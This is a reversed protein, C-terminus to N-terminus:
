DWGDLGLGMGIRQIRSSPKVGAKLGLKGIGLIVSDAHDPKMGAEREYDEVGAWGGLAGM